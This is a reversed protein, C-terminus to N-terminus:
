GRAIDAYPVEQGCKECTRKMRIRGGDDDHVKRM